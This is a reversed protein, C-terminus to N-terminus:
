DTPEADQHLIQKLVEPHQKLFYHWYYSSLFYVSKGFQSKEHFHIIVRRFFLIKSEEVRDISDYTYKFSKFFNSVYFANTDVAVWKIRIFLLYLIGMTSIFFSWVLLRASTPTFPDQINDLSIFLMVLATGGMFCGWFMPFFKLVLTWRSSVVHPKM